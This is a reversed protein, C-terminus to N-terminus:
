SGKGYEDECIKQVEELTGTFFYRPTTGIGGFNLLDACWVGERMKLSCVTLGDRRLLWQEELGRGFDPKIHIWM